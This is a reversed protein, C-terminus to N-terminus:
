CTSASCVCHFVLWVVAFVIFFSLCRVCAVVISLVIFVSGVDYVFCPFCHFYSLWPAAVSLCLSCDFFSCALMMSLCMCFVLWVWLCVMFVSGAGCVFCFFFRLPLLRPTFRVIFFVFVFLLIWLLLLRFLLSFLALDM